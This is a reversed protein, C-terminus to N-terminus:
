TKLTSRVQILRLRSVQTLCTQRQLSDVQDRTGTLCPKHCRLSNFLSLKGWVKVCKLKLLLRRSTTSLLSSSNNTVM